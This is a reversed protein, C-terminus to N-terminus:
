NYRTCVIQDKFKLNITKYKYWGVKNMEKKYFLLLKGFKEGINDAGGIIIGQNGLTLFLEMDGNPLVYIEDIMAKWFDSKNIYNCFLYVKQLDTLKNTDIHVNKGFNILKLNSTYENTINGHAIIIRPTYKDSLPVMKGEADLYYSEGKNNIVRVIPQHQIVNIKLVGDNTTYVNVSAVFPNELIKKEILENNIESINKLNIICNQKKLINEIDNKTIFDSSNSHNLSIDIRTLKVNEHKKNFYIIVFILGAVLVVWLIIFLFIKM